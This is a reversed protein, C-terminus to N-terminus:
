SDGRGKEGGNAVNRWKEKAELGREKGLTAREGGIRTTAKRVSEEGTVLRGERRRERKRYGEMGLEKWDEKM